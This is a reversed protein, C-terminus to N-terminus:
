LPVGNIKSELERVKALLEPLRELAAHMKHMQKAPRAPTGFYAVGPVTDQAVGSHGMIISGKAVRVHDKIACNGSIMAYDEVVVSGALGSHGAIYVFKGVRVNHGIHVQDDIKTNEGISTSEITARDVTCGSGMEVHDAVTVNGIQPIKHRKGPEDIFGFGDAGIVTCGHLICDAGIVCHHGIVTNPFITTDAGITAFPEVVVGPYLVTRAGIVAGEMVTAGPLISASPDIVAKAHIRPGNDVGPAFKPAKEFHKLLAIFALRAGKQPVIMAHEFKDAFEPTTLIAGTKGALPHRKLVANNEIFYVQNELLPEDKSLAAIDRVGMIPYDAPGKAEANLLEALQKLNM